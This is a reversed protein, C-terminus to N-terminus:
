SSSFFQFTNECHVLLPIFNLLCCHLRISCRHFLLFSHSSFFLRQCNPVFDHFLWRQSRSKQWCGRMSVQRSWIGYCGISRFLETISTQRCKVVILSWLGAWPCRHWISSVFQFHVMDINFMMSAKEERLEWITCGGRGVHYVGCIRDWCAAVTWWHRHTYALSSHYLLARFDLIFPGGYCNLATTAWRKSNIM